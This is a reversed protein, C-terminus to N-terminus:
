FRRTELAEGPQLRNIVTKTRPLTLTANCARILDSLTVTGDENRKTLKLAKQLEEPTLYIGLAALVSDLDSIKVKKSQISPIAHAAWLFDKLNVTGDEHVTALKLAQQVEEPTLHIGINALASKLESVAVRKEAKMVTRASRKFAELDVKGDADVPTHKLADDLQKNTLHIGMEALVADLSNISVRSEAKPRPQVARVGKMFEALNVKGEADVPTHKLAEQLEEATLHIGMNALIGELDRVDIRDREFMAPKRTAMVRKLVSKLNVKGQADFTVHKLVEEMEEETLHLGMKALAPSLDEAAIMKGTRPHPQAARAGKKLEGVKREAAKPRPQVARVGKMFEALNVKGEADLPARKLAEQLEEATLHIGMNALIDELDQVDVRDREFMAPQRTAMVSALVNKLNVKGNADPTVHKWVEQMEEKTLHIGMKALAASLDDAAVMEGTGPHPQVAKAGKKFEGLSVRGEGATRPHPQVAKAGKKFEGLDVKGEVTRPHPQVARVGKMFEGLNVKGEADVPAHKLAEQLEEATLHIGMNALIGELDQVDVRDREFMAPPRTAMVSELVNKLNVKGNADLPVHKLVEEMEEKTLHIGMKALAASLDDAAVMEGIKPLPQVGTAGKKLEGVTGKGEVATRPHPQGAKSGRRSEGVTVKGEEATRPHPQAAKAGKKLEALDVKGEETKPHPQVAKVGKMFEGLNVKGKADVPAYKLAEQLEEATLHIGASALIGELDRVDIRDKEFMAPQRTAMVNELVSKLNVKGEADLPVHKLVEELEEKTLHIGMKALAPSLADAAVMEGAKLHPRVARVGQMFEALNVKGEADLPAYKLAEQLEKPTLSIGASALVGELDRVNIRDKEFMAPQRSAMVSELVNKLNVKGNADPTVHKLVEEMEEKTLHIGMKALAPSLDDAAVMEGAKPQPQIAKAGKKFEEMTVKGETKPHPQGAKSVKRSDGMTVKGEETKPHPQTAKAGKKLEGMTVKGEETGPHPQVTRVGKMFEALNVKGEADLPAYKLAEQMEEPTLSIGASALVGELDQVNIRDKEFMAPQRTAMVSELVNKLDAKGQADLTVHKLVEQMESETLHIGMQALAPRLDGPAVMKGTRPHPQVARVGKMFEALNVKGEADLPAYKLAEQLEEPTLYIGASALVGELDQVNIRDKEFMAPQRTAMVSELVNKLNVKRNADFSVHKLVKEMEEKTLHIGMKALTSSLDEAAVMKGEAAAAQQAIKAGKMFEALNITGDEDIPAYRLAEQIEDATLSIGKSTLLAEINGVPVRDKESQAETRTLLVYNMLENVNVKGNENVSLHKITEGLEEKTLNIGINTLFSNVNEVAVVGGPAGAASSLQKTCRVSKMFANLNVKGDEDVIVHNLTQEMEEETLRLGMNELISDLNKISVRDKEDQSFRQNKTLGSMFNKVSVTGDDNKTVFKLAQQLEAPSLHIGMRGMIADLEKVDVKDKRIQKMADVAEEMEAMKSFRRTNPLGSLFKKMDVKGNDDVTVYDLAEQMEEKTLAIDIAGLADGLESVDIKDDQVKNLVGYAQHIAASESFRENEMLSLLFDKFIVKKEKDISVNKLAEEIDKNSLSIDLSEMISKLESVKVKDGKIRSFAETASRLAKSDSFRRLQALSRLFDKVNITGDAAVPINCLAEQLEEQTLHIGVDDLTSELENLHLHSGRTAKIMIAARQLAELETFEPTEGLALLFDKFNIEGNEDVKAKSVLAEFAPKTLRVGMNELTQKLQSLTMNKHKINEVVKIADQLAVFETLRPAGALIKLLETGDLVGSENVAASTMAAQLEEPSLSIGLEELASPLDEKKIKEKCIKNIANFTGQVANFEAFSQTGTLKTVVEKFDVTGDGSVTVSSQLEKVEHPTLHIGLNALTTAMEDVHVRNDKITSMASLTEKLVPEQPVEPLLLFVRMFEQFNVKGQQNVKATKMAEQLLEKAEPLDMTDLSAELAPLDFHEDKLKSLVVCTLQLEPSVLFTGTHTVGKIFEKLNVTKQDDITCFALAESIDEPPIDINFNKMVVKLDEVGIRGSKVKKLIAFADLLDASTRFKQNRTLTRMFDNFKAQGAGTVHALKLAHAVVQNAMRLGLTNLTEKRQRSKVEKCQKVLKLARITDHVAVCNAYRKAGKMASMLEKIEITGDPSLKLSKTVEALEKETFHVGINSLCAKVDSVKVKNDKFQSFSKITNNLVEMDRFRQTQSIRNMVQGIDLKGEKDPPTQQIIEEYELPTLHIGMKSLTPKLDQLSIKGGQICGIAKLTDKLVLWDSFLPADTLVKVFDKAVVKGGDDVSVKQLAQQFGQDSLHIGMKRVFAPLEHVLVKDGEIREIAQIANKLVALESFRHIKGLTAMFTNFNVTGDKAMGSKQLVQEFEKDSFTVGMKSLISRLHGAQINDKKLQNVISFADELARLKPKPGVPSQAASISKEGPSKRSKREPM